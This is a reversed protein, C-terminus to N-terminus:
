KHPPIRVAFKTEPDALSLHNWPKKQDRKKGHSQVPEYKQTPRSQQWKGINEFLFLLKQKVIRNPFRISEVESGEVTCSDIMKGMNESYKMGYMTDLPKGCLQM